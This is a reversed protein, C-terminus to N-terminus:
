RVAKRTALGFEAREIATKADELSPYGNESLGYEVDNQTATHRVWVRWGANMHVISLSFNGIRVTRRGELHDHTVDKALMTPRKLPALM